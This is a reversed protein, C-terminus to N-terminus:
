KGYATKYGTAAARRSKQVKANLDADNPMHRQSFQNIGKTDDPVDENGGGFAPPIPKHQFMKSVKTPKLDALSPAPKTAGGPAVVGSDDNGGSFPKPPAKGALQDKTKQAKAAAAGSWKPAQPKESSPEQKPKEEKDKSDSSTPTATYDGQKSLFKNIEQDQPDMSDPYQDGDSSKEDPKDINFGAPLDKSFSNDPADKYMNPAPKYGKLGAVGGQVGAKVKGLFDSAGGKVKGLLTNHREWDKQIKGLDTQLNKTVGDMSKIFDGAKAVEPEIKNATEPPLVTNIKQTLQPNVQNLTDSYNKMFVALDKPSKVKGLDKTRIDEKLLFKEIDKENVKLKNFRWM